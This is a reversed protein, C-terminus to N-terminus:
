QDKISDCDLCIIISTFSVVQFGRLLYPAVMVIVPPAQLEGSIFLKTCFIPSIFLNVGPMSSIFIEVGFPTSIFLTICKLYRNWFRGGVM